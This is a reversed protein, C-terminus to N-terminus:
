KKIPDLAALVQKMAESPANIQELVQKMAESPANIQELVQKMAESPANIQELAQKIAESPANIQELAQKMAENPANIQELAQKMAESPANIRDLAEQLANNAYLDRHSSSLNSPLSLIQRAESEEEKKTVNVELFKLAKSLSTTLQIPKRGVRDRFESKLADNLFTEGNFTLGYDSDRSVIAFRGKLQSACQIFWEWNLADGISTDRDKRPPYGLVFRRWALRKIKHRIKMDRTLVHDHASSFISELSKYVPDYAAPNKIINTIRKKLENSRKELEKKERKLTNSLQTDGMVAPLNDNIKLSPLVSNDIIVAQRNKLFEMEVQYTCIVRDAVGELKELLKLTTENNARYFDLFINTDIFIYSPPLKRKPM